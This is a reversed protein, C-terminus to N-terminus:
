GETKRGQFNRKAHEVILAHYEQYIKMRENEKYVPELATHFKNQISSYREKMEVIGLHSFIRRTYTDVVFFPQKFAYLMMSDASEEGIGRLKLLEARTPVPADREIFFAALNKLYASKQNYYGARRIATKLTENDLKLLSEPTLAGLQSLNKLAIEVSKWNTNQTLIAGTCIEFRQKKTQPLEYNEPHYGNYDSLPWWGRPGYLDLLEHYTQIIITSPNIMIHQNM